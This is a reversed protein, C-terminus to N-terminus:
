QQAPREGEGCWFRAKQEESLPVKRLVICQRQTQLFEDQVTWRGNGDSGNGNYWCRGTVAQVLRERGWETDAIGLKLVVKLVRPSAKPRLAFVMLQDKLNSLEKDSEAQSMINAGAEVLALFCADSRHYYERRTVLGLPFDVTCTYEDMHCPRNPSAGHYILRKIAREDGFRIASGLETIICENPAPALSSTHGNGHCQCPFWVYESAHPAIFSDEPLNLLRQFNEPPISM